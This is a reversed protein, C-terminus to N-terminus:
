RALVIDVRRNRGRGVSTANPVLPRYEGYGTASIRIPDFAYRDVFFKLVTLARASSLDWNSSYTKNRTPVNDTHGEIKIDGQLGKLTLALESLVEDAGASLDASGSKFLTGGPVRIIIGKEAMLVKLKGDRSLGKVSEVLGRYKGSFRRQFDLSLSSADGAALPFPRAPDFVSQKFASSLAGSFRQFKAENLSSIAYMSTFFAFLLTIFDAYSVLWREHNGGSHRKRKRRSRM